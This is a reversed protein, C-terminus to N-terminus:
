QNKIKLGFHVFLFHVTVRVDHSKLWTNQIYAYYYTISENNMTEHFADMQLSWIM